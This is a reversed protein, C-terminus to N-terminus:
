ASHRLPGEAEIVKDLSRGEVFEMAIYLTGDAEAGFDSVKITNPHELQAVTGCERHFRQLVSPDKSLHPHLTKIAAKRVTSGMQQEAAYVVGMGSGEGLVRTVRFRGGVLRGIWEGETPHSLPM